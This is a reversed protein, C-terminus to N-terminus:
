REKDKKREQLLEMHYAPYKGGNETLTIKASYKNGSKKSTLNKAIYGGGSVLATAVKKTFNLGISQMFKNDKWLVFDCGKAMCCYSLKREAVANGCRPCVGVNEATNDASFVRKADESVTSYDAILKKVLETISDMFESESIQGKEMQLLKNEWEATLMPSTVVDPLIEIM